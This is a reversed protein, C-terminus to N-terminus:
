PGTRVAEQAKKQLQDLIGRGFRHEIEARMVDNYGNMEDVAKSDVESEVGCEQKLLKVYEPHDPPFPAPPFLQKLSGKEVDALAEKMGKLRGPSPKGKGAGGQAVESPGAGAPAGCFVVLVAALIVTRV